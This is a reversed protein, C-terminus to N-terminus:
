LHFGKAIAEFVATAMAGVVVILGTLLWYHIKARKKDLETKVKQTTTFTTFFEDAGKQFAKFNAVGSEVQIMRARLDAIDSIVQDSPNFFGQHNHM